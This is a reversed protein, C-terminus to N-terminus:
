EPAAKSRSSSKPTMPNASEHDNPSPTCNEITNQLFLLLMTPTTWVAKSDTILDGTGTTGRGKDKAKIKKVPIMLLSNLRMHLEGLKEDDPKLM